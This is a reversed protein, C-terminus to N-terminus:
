NEREENMEFESELDEFLEEKIDVTKEGIKDWVGLIGLMLWLFLLGLVVLIIFVYKQM